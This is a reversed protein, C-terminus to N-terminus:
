ASAASSLKASQENVLQKFYRGREEFDRFEDFSAAGPSFLLVDDPSSQQQAIQWADAVRQAQSYQLGASQLHSALIRADAGFAVIARLSAQQRKLEQMLPAWSGAKVQGGLLLSIKAQPFAEVIARFAALTSAVTTSKSDNVVKLASRGSLMELRHELPQFDQLAKLLAANELGLLKCALLAAAINYRNHLGILKCPQIDLEESKAGLNFEIRDIGRRADYFVLAGERNQFQRADSGFWLVKSGIKPALDRVRKDDLNLLAFDTEDQREFLRAKCAAYRELTGHRELHNDSINLLIGVKPKILRCSELQYSSAEVVQIEKPDKAASSLTNQGLAAVVPVGVNGCLHPKFGGARLLSEILTVTTSKGNSGTVMIAAAGNLEIGLELESVFPVGKRTLVGCIASELSVGPSLVSLEVESLLPLVNEGNIAFHIEIQRSELEALRAALPSRKLYTEHKESEVAVVKIGCRALFLASEIGSIGLGVVLVRKGQNAIQSLKQRFDM